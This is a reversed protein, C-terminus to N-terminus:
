RSVHTQPPPRRHSEEFRRATNGRMASSSSRPLYPSTTWDNKRLSEATAPGQAILGNAPDVVFGTAPGVFTYSRTPHFNGPRATGPVHAIADCEHDLAWVGDWQSTTCDFAYDIYGSFYVRNQFAGRCQPMRTPAAGCCALFQASPRLDGNLLFRWVGKVSTPDLSQWNRVYHARLVGSWLPFNNACIYLRVRILYVDCVPGNVTMARVPPDFTACIRQNVQTVCSNFCLYRGDTQIQPFMPLAPSVPSCCSVSDFLDSACQAAARGTWLVAAFGIVCGAIRLLSM